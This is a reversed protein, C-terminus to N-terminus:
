ISRAGHGPWRRDTAPWGPPEELFSGSRTVPHRHSLSRRRHRVIEGGCVHAFDATSLLQDTQPPSSIAPMGSATTPSVGAWRQPPANRRLERSITSASRGLRACSDGAHSHGTDPSRLRERDGGAVFVAGSLPRAAPIQFTATAHRGGKPVMQNRFAAVCRARRVCCRPQEFWRRDWCFDVETM